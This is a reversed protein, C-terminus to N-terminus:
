SCINCSNAGINVDFIPKDGIPYERLFNDKDIPIIEKKDKGEVGKSECGCKEM